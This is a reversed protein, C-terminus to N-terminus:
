KCRFGNACLHNCILEVSREVAHSLPAHLQFTEPEIGVIYVEKVGDQHLLPILLPVPISHTSLSDVPLHHPEILRVEGAAGGFRAADIFVVKEARSEQAAVVAKEPCGEADLLTCLGDPILRSAVACGAGDDGRDSNGLTVVLMVGDAPTLAQAVDSPLM